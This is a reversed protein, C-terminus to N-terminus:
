NERQYAGLAPLVVLFDSERRRDFHADVVDFPVSLPKIRPQGPTSVSQGFRLVGFADLTEDPGVVSFTAVADPGLATALNQGLRSFYEAGGDGIVVDDGVEPVHDSGILYVARGGDQLRDLVGKSMQRDREAQVDRDETDSGQLPNLGVVDIGARRAEYILRMDDDSWGPITVASLHELARQEDWSPDLTSVVEEFTRLDGPADEGRAEAITDVTTEPDVEIFLTTVGSDSLEPMADALEHRISTSSADHYEGVLTVAHEGAAEVLTGRFDTTANRVAEAGAAEEPSPTRLSPDGGLSRGPDTSAPAGAQRSREARFPDVVSYSDERVQPGPLDARREAVSGADLRPMPGLPRIANLDAM